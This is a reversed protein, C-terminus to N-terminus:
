KRRVNNRAILEGINYQAAINKINKNSTINEDIFEDKDVDDTNYRINDALEISKKIFDQKDFDISLNVSYKEMRDAIHHIISTFKNDVLSLNPEIDYNLIFIKDKNLTNKQYDIVDLIQQMQGATFGDFISIASCRVQLVASAIDFHKNKGDNGTAFLHEDYKLSKKNKLKDVLTTFAAKNQDYKGIEKNHYKTVAKAIAYVDREKIVDDINNTNKTSYGAYIQHLNNYSFKAQPWYQAITNNKGFILGVSFDDHYKYNDSIAKQNSFPMLSISKFGNFGSIGRDTNNKKQSYSIMGGELNTTYDNQLYFDQITPQFSMFYCDVEKKKDDYNITVHYGGDGKETYSIKKLDQIMKQRAVHNIKLSRKADKKTQSTEKSKSLLEEFSKDISYKSLTDNDRDKINLDIMKQKLVIDITNNSSEKDSNVVDHNNLKNKQVPKINNVSQIQKKRSSCKQYCCSM